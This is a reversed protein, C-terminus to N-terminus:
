EACPPPSVSTAAGAPASTDVALELLDFAVNDSRVGAPGTLTAASAPLRGQWVLQGDAWATLTDGEIEARLEHERALDLRPAVARVRSKVRTYGHAGCETSTQEGDNRKVQVTVGPKTGERWMVYVLNCSDQARLKLGIQRRLEGSDLARQEATDGRVRFRLRAADGAHGLAVARFTPADVQGAVLQGSTVCLPDLPVAQLAHLPRRGVDAHGSRDCALCLTLWLPAARM